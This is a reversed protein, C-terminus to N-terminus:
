PARFFLTLAGGYQVGPAASKWKLEKLLRQLKAQRVQLSLGKPCRGTITVAVIAQATLKSQVAWMDRAICDPCSTCADYFVYKIRVSDQLRRILETFSVPLAFSRYKSKQHTKRNYQRCLRRNNAGYNACLLHGPIKLRRWLNLLRYQGNLAKDDLVLSCAEQDPVSEQLEFGIRARLDLHANKEHALAGLTFRRKISFKPLLKRVRALKKPCNGVEQVLQQRLRRSGLQSLLTELKKTM